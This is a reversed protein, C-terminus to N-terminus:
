CHSFEVHVIWIELCHGSFRARMGDPAVAGMRPLTNKQNKQKENGDPKSQHWTKAGFKPISEHNM